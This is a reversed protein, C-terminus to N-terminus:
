TCGAMAAIFFDGERYGPARGFALAATAAPQVVREPRCPSEPMGGGSRIVSSVGVGLAVRRWVRYGGSVDVVAGGQIPQESTM